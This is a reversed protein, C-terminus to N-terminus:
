LFPGNENLFGPQQKKIQKENITQNYKQSYIKLYVVKLLFNFGDFFFTPLDAINHILKALSASFLLNNKELCGFFLTASLRDRM